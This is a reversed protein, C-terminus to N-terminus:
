VWIGCGVFKSQKWANPYLTSTVYSLENQDDKSQCYIFRRSLVKSGSGSYALNISKNWKRQNGKPATVLQTVYSNPLRKVFRGKFKFIRWGYRFFLTDKCEATDDLIQINVKSTICPHKEYNKQATSSIGTLQTITDRSIPQKERGAHWAVYMIANFDIFTGCLSGVPVYVPTNDLREMGLAIALYKPSKLYVRGNVKDWSWFVNDGEKLRNTLTREAFIPKTAEKLLTYDLWNAPNLGYHSKALLWIRFHPMRNKQFCTAVLSPYVRVDQMSLLIDRELFRAIRFFCAFCRFM